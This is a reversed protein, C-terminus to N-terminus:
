VIGDEDLVLRPDRGDSFVGRFSRRPRAFIFAPLPAIDYEDASYFRGIREAGERQILRYTGVM